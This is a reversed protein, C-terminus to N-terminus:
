DEVPQQFMGTDLLDLQAADDSFLGIDCPRQPKSPLAKARRLAGIRDATTVSPIVGLTQQAIPSAKHTM